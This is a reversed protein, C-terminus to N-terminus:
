PAGIDPEDNHQGKPLLQVQLIYPQAEGKGLPSLRTLRLTSRCPGSWWIWEGVRARQPSGLFAFLSSPWADTKSVFISARLAVVRPETGDGSTFGVQITDFRGLRVAKFLFTNDELGLLLSSSKPVEILPTVSEVRSRTMGISVGDIGYGTCVPAGPEPDTAKLTPRDSADKGGSPSAPATASAAHSSSPHPVITDSEPRRGAHACASLFAMWLIAVAVVRSVRLM